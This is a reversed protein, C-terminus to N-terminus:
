YFVDLEGPGPIDLEDAERRRVKTDAEALDRYFQAKSVGIVKRVERREFGLGLLFNAFLGRVKSVKLNNDSGRLDGECCELGLSPIGLKVGRSDVAAM